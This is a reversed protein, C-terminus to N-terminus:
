NPIMFRASVQGVMAAPKGLRIAIELTDYVQLSYQKDADCLYGGGTAVVLDANQIAQFFDENEVWDQEAKITSEAPNSELNPKNGRYAESSSFRTKIYQRWEELLFTPFRHLMEERLELLLRVIPRPVLRHFNEFRRRSLIYNQWHHVSVPIVTPCYLQLIHPAETLVYISADPWLESFRNVATQLLAVNGKNCQDYVAQDLLIRM